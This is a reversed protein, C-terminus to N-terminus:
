LRFRERRHGQNNVFKRGIRAFIAGELSRAALDSDLSANVVRAVHGHRPALSTSRGYQRWCASAEAGRNEVLRNRELDVAERGAPKQM